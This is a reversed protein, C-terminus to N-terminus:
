GRRAIRMHKQTNFSFTGLYSAKFWGGFDGDPALYKTGISYSPGFKFSWSLNSRVLWLSWRWTISDPPHYGLVYAKRVKTFSLGRIM